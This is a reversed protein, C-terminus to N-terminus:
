KEDHTGGLTELREQLAITQQYFAYDKARDTHGYFDNDLIELLGGNNMIAIKQGLFVAEEIHHTVVIFTLDYRQQLIVLLDQFQHKNLADLASSPEDLLLIDPKTILSRAVAVRQKEGGSLQHPFRDLLHAIHLDQAMAEILANIESKTHTTNILSLAINDRICKWPFLGGNQLILSLHHSQTDISGSSIRHIGAISLLLSSKGCGSPGIIALTEGKRLSLSIQHLITQDNLTLGISNLTM